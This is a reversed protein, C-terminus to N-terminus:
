SAPGPAPWSASSAVVSPPWASGRPLPRESGAASAPATIAGSGYEQPECVPMHVSPRSWPSAHVEVDFVLRDVVGGVHDLEPALDIEVGRRLELLAHDLQDLAALLLDDDVEGLGGEDVRRREADQHSAHLAQTRRPARQREHARVLVDRLDELNGSEVPDERDM